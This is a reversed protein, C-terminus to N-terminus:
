GEEEEGGGGRHLMVSPIAFCHQLTHQRVCIFGLM